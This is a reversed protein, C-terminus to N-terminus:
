EPRRMLESRHGAITGLPTLLWLIAPILPRTVYLRWIRPQGFVLRGTEVPRM